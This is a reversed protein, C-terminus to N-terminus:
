RVLICGCEDCHVLEDPPLKKLRDVEVAPLDLHCGHCTSGVLRAVGVAGPRGRLQEYEAVLAEPVEAATGARADTEEAIEGDIRAQAEVIAGETEGRRAAIAAKREDFAALATDLPDAEEMVELIQDEVGAQRGKLSAIEDQLAQLDKVATVEGGYLKADEEAIRAEILAVEDELRKQRRELEHRAERTEAAEGDVAATQADLDVLLDFEPLHEREHRLADLKRDHDQVVLLRKLSDSDAATM